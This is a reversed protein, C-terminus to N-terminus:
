EVILVTRATPIKMRPIQINTKAPRATDATLVSGQPWRWL